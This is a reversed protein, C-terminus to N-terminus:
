TSFLVFNQLILLFFHRLKEDKLRMYIIGPILYILGIIYGTSYM